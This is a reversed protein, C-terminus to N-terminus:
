SALSASYRRLGDLKQSTIILGRKRLAGAMAGRISHAQWGTVEVMEAISAGGDRFLLEELQDLRSPPRTTAIVARAAAPLAPDPAAQPERAMRRQRSPKTNTTTDSTM